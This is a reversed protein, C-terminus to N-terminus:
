QARRAFRQVGFLVVLGVTWALPVWELIGVFANSHKGSVALLLLWENVGLWLTMPLIMHGLMYASLEGRPLPYSVPHRARHIRERTGMVLGVIVGWLRSSL